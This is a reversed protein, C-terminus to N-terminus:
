RAWKLVFWDRDAINKFHFKEATAIWTSDDFNDMCWQIMEERLPDHLGFHTTSRNTAWYSPYGESEDCGIKMTTDFVVNMPQVGMIQQAILTPVVKNIIPLIIAPDKAVEPPMSDIIKEIEKTIDESM